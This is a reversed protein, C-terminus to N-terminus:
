KREREAAESLAGALVASQRWSDDSVPPGQGQRSAQVDGNESGQEGPKNLTM